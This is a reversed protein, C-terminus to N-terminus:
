QSHLCKNCGADTALPTRPTRAHDLPISDQCGGTQLNGLNPVKWEARWFTGLGRAPISICQHSSVVLLVFHNDVAQQERYLSIRQLGGLSYTKVVRPVYYFVVRM